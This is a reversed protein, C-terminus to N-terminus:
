RRMAIPDQQDHMQPQSNSMHIHLLRCAKGSMTDLLHYCQHSSCPTGSSPAEWFRCHPYTRPQLEKADRHKFLSAFVNVVINQQVAVVAGRHRVEICGDYLPGSIALYPLEKHYPLHPHFQDSPLVRSICCAKPRGAAIEDTYGLLFHFLRVFFPGDVTCLLTQIQTEGGSVPRRCTRIEKM